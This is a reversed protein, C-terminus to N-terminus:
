ILNVEDYGALDIMYLLAIVDEFFYLLKKWGIQENNLDFIRLTYNKIPLNIEKVNLNGLSRNLAEGYNSLENKLQPTEHLEYENFQNFYLKVGPDIWLRYIAELLESNSRISDSKSSAFNQVLMTDKERTPDSFPIKLMAMAHIIRVLEPVTDLDANYQYKDLTGRKLYSDSQIVKLKNLLMLKAAQDTGLLLLKIDKTSRLADKKIQKDLRRSNEVSQRRFRASVCGMNIPLRHIM